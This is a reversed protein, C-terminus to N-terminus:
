AFFERPWWWWWRRRQWPEWRQRDNTSSFILGVGRIFIARSALVAAGQSTKVDAAFEEYQYDVRSELVLM